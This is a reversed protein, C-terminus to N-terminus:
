SRQLDEHLEHRQFIHKLEEKHMEKQSFIRVTLLMRWSLDPSGSM